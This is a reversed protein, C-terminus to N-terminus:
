CYINYIQGMFYVVPQEPRFLEILKSNDNECAWEYIDSRKEKSIYPLFAKLAPLNECMLAQDIINGYNEICHNLSKKNKEVIAECCNYINNMEHNVLRTFLDHLEERDEELKKAILAKVEQLPQESTGNISSLLEWLLLYITYIYPARKIVDTSETEKEYLDKCTNIYSDCENKIKQYIDKETLKALLSLATENDNNRLLVNARSELLLRIANPEFHLAAYFLPTNGKKDKSNVTIARKISNQSRTLLEALVPVHNKKAALMLASRGKADVLNPNAGNKLLLKVSETDGNEAVYILLADPDMGSELLDKVTEFSNKSQTFAIKLSVSDKLDKNPSMSLCPNAYLMLIFNLFLCFKKM